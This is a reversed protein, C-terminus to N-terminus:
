KKRKVWPLSAFVGLPRDKKAPQVSIQRVTAAMAAPRAVPEQRVAREGHVARESTLEIVSHQGTGDVEKRADLRQVSFREREAVSVRKVQPKDYYTTLYGAVARAAMEEGFFGLRLANVSRGHDVDAVSYLRYLLFIDLNPVTAPDFAHDSLALQIVYWRLPDQDELELSTLPRLTQTNELSIEPEGLAESRDPSRATVAASGSTSKVNPAATKSVFKLAPEAVSKLAPESPMSLPPELSLSAIMADFSADMVPPARVPSSAVPEPALQIPQELVAPAPPASLPLLDPLAPTLGASKSSADNVPNVIPQEPPPIRAKARLDAIASLDDAGATATLAGPYIDRVRTLAADAEDERVFPGMRLRYRKRGDEVRQIRYVQANRSGLDDVPRPLPASSACLNIVFPGTGGLRATDPMPANLDDFSLERPELKLSSDISTVMIVLRNGVSTDASRCYEGLAGHCVTVSTVECRRGAARRAAM